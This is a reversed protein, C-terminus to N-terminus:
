RSPSASTTVNGAADRATATITHPGDSVARSNWTVGYPSTTDEAGIEDSRRPPVARQGRRRQRGRPRLPVAGTVTSGGAPATVNRDAGDHGTAAAGREFRDRQGHRIDDLEGRRRAGSRHAHVNRQGGLHNDWTVGYPATTDESGIAAGDVRFQVGSVGVNDSATASVALREHWLAHCRWNASVPVGDTGYTAPPPPPSAGGVPTDRDRAVEAATLGRNYVRVDDSRSRQVM